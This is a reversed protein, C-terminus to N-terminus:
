CNQSIPNNALSYYTLPALDSNIAPVKFALVWHESQWLCERSAVKVRILFFFYQPIVIKSWFHFGVTVLNKKGWSCINVKSLIRLAHWPAFMPLLLFQLFSPLVILHGFKIVLSFSNQHCLKNGADSGKGFVSHVVVLASTLNLVSLPWGLTQCALSFVQTVSKM